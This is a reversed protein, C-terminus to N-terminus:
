DTLPKVNIEHANEKSDILHEEVWLDNPSDFELLKWNNNIYTLAKDQTSFAAFTINMSPSSNERIIYIHM